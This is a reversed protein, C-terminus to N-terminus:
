KWYKAAFELFVPWNPKQFHGYRHQRFAVDGSLLATEVAPMTETPLGKRGLLRYVAGAQVAADFMGQPDVWADGSALRSSM